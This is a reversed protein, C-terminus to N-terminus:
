GGLENSLISMIRGSSKIPVIFIMRGAAGLVFNDISFISIIRGTSKLVVFYGGIVIKLFM